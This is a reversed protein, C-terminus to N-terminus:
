VLLAAEQPSILSKLRAMVNSHIQCVRSETLSLMEGIERMTMGNRYYHEIIFREKQTLSRTLFSMMDHQNLEETPDVSDKDVLFAFKEMPSDEDSDEWHESFSFMSKVNSAEIESCLESHDMELAAALESHTPERGYESTLAKLTNEIRTAKMRVLRPVWDESRLQDLISGRIRPPCYTKFKIGRSPDFGRVADMLGFVGASILDDLEVSRPLTKLLRMAIFRVLPMHRKLIENRVLQVEAEDAGHLACKEAYLDLLEPTDMGEMDPLDHTTPPVAESEGAATCQAQNESM